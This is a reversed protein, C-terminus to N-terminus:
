RKKKDKKEGKKGQIAVKTPTAKTTAAAATTRAASSSTTTTTALKKEYHQKTLSYLLVGGIGIGSGIAAQPTIENRFVM